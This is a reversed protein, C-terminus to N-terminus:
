IIGANVNIQTGSLMLAEDSALFVAAYAIEEPKIFRGLPIKSQLEKRAEVPDVDRPLIDLVMGTDTGEPNICNVRVHYPSLELSVAKTLTIVAGKSSTYASGNPRPNIGGMSAVNIIAGSRAKKMLPIAYKMTHFIGKVNVGYVKDWEAEDIEELPVFSHGIGAVNLLVDIRGYREKTVRILNEAESARSVDTHVYAAEGSNSKITAVTETGGADNIDAAVVKAGEKAFVIACARGIGSAAGTIIAVKDALRM